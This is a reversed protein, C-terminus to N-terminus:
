GRFKDILINFDITGAAIGYAVAAVTALEAISAGKLVGLWKLVAGIIFLISIIIKAAKSLTKAPLASETEQVKEQNEESM